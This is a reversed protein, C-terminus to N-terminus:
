QGSLRITQRGRGDLHSLETAVPTVEIVRYRGEITDGERGYFVNGKGDSLVAVRGAQTPADLLGIYRLPIAPVPPPGSPVVVPPAVRPSPSSVTRTPAAPAAREAFRFPNRAVDELEPPASHLRHLRVETLPVNKQAGSRAAGRPSASPTPADGQIAVLVAALVVVAGSLVFWRRLNQSM